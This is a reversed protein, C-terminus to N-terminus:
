ISFEFTCRTGAQKEMLFSGALQQSLMKVLMLGFGKSQDIAFGEPLGNGDDEISLKVHKDATTLSIKIEGADRGIFAYKMKNTLLENIILGLPFLRKPDLHFNDIHKDVTIKASGPFLAFISDALSEIYNKVSINEHGKGLLLKEYLIRMSEVRGIADKLAATAEPHTSSQLRMSLLGGISAINNKIRHHVEKLLIEKEELQQQIVEEARKGESIDRSVAQFGTVQGNQVILQINQGLWIECGDKTILPFESYTNPTGMRIQYLFTKVAMKRMDPRILTPYFKGILDKEEYGTVAIAARNIFTFRGEKDTRYIFDSANEILTRYREESEQLATETKKYETIDRILGLTGMIGRKKDLPSSKIEGNFLSDDKRKMLLSLNRSPLGTSVATQFAQMAKPIESEPLFEVFRRGIMEEPSWGFMRLASPSLYTISGKDDTTFLVDELQEAMNRFKEESEQLAALAAERQSEMRRRGTIDMGQSMVSIMEDQPNLLVSNYWECIIVKGEKTVNRNTSVVRRASRDSLREMMKQVLPIDEDYIMKLDMISKGITESQNWGFIREAEGSWRTLIFDRTWEIAALPSNDVHFNLRQESERLAKLATEKQTEARTRESIDRFSWVRGVPKGSVWQPRSYREFCRGDNLQFLDFSEQRPAAYLESVKALFGQPDLLQDLVFGLVQADDHAALISDPIRWMRAFRQNFDTIKGEHDIVLIGDATSEITARQLSIIKEKEEEARKRESIDEMHVMVLDPPIPVITLAIVTGPIFHESLTIKRVVKGEVLCQQLDRLIDQRSAYLDSAKRGVFAVIKEHTIMRAADNFDILEFDEGKKQWTVTPVPLGQYQAKLRLESEKLADIAQQRETIDRVIHILGSQRNNSDFRPLARIELYRNLYPEFLEFTAPMGSRLCACSPCGAPPADEGHYFSFCKLKLHEEIAPLKLLAKGAKNARIVNYDNDHITIMDTISDFCEEWDKKSQFVAEEARKRETIDHFFGIHYERGELVVASHSIDAYFITGDKRLCPLDPSSRIEGRELAEFEALVHDMSGRPHIDAVGIRLFEKETYGMMRCIAPNAYRFKRTQSDALLIGDSAGSFLVRYSAESERLAKEKELEKMKADFLKFAMKISADLVTGSSDKVVYGYSTIKETKEVVEPETHSSLFVVPLDREKLILAAAETGDMGAGLNIDMLILDIGPSKEVTAVAEEGNNAIIVQYGFKELTLKETMAIIAEDEVLLITKQKEANM